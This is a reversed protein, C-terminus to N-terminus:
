PHNIFVSRYAEKITEEEGKNSAKNVIRVNVGSRNAVTERFLTRSALDEFACVWLMMFWHDGILEPLEAIKHRLLHQRLVSSDFTTPRM